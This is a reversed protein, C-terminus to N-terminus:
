LCFSSVLFGGFLFFIELLGVVDLSSHMIIKSIICGKHMVTSVRLFFYSKNCRIALNLIPTVTNM